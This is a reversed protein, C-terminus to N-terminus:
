LSAPVPYSSTGSIAEFIYGSRSCCLGFFISLSHIRTNRLVRFLTSQIQGTYIALRRMLEKVSGSLLIKIKVYRPAPTYYEKLGENEFVDLNGENICDDLLKRCRDIGILHELLETSSVVFKM